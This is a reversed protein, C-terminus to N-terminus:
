NQFKSPKLPLLTNIQLSCESTKLKLFKLVDEIFFVRSSIWLWEKWLVEKNSIIPDHCCEVTLDNRFWQIVLLVGYRCLHLYQSKGLLSLTQWTYDNGAAFQVLLNHLCSAWQTISPHRWNSLRKPAIRRLKKNKVNWITGYTKQRSPKNKNRSPYTDHALLWADRKSLLYFATTSM